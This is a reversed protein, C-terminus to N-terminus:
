AGVYQSWTRKTFLIIRNISFVEDIANTEIRLKARQNIFNALVVPQRDTAASMNLPTLTNAKVNDLSQYTMRLIGSGTVRLRVSNWHMVAEEKGDGIPALVAYPM